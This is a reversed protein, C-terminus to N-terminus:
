RTVIAEKLKREFLFQLDRSGKREGGDMEYERFCHIRLPLIGLPVIRAKDAYELMIICIDDTCFDIDGGDLLKERGLPDILLRALRHNKTIRNNCIEFKNGPLLLLPLFTYGKKPRTGLTYIM